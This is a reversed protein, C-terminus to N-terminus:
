MVHKSESKEKHDTWETYAAVQKESVARNMKFFVMEWPNLSFGCLGGEFYNDHGIPGQGHPCEANCKTMTAEKNRFDHGDWYQMQSVLNFGHKIFTRSLGVEGYRIGEERTTHKCTWQDEKLILQVGDSDTVLFMSQLHVTEKSLAQYKDRCNISTGILKNNGDIQRTFLRTWDIHEVGNLFIPAIFPGRVSANMFIFFKYQEIDLENLTTSWSCFDRGVNERARYKIWM